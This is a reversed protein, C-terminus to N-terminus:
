QARRPGAITRSSVFTSVDMLSELCVAIRNLAGFSTSDFGGGGGGLSKGPTPIGGVNRNRNHQLRALTKKWEAKDALFQKYAAVRQEDTRNGNSLRRVWLDYARVVKNFAPYIPAYSAGIMPVIKSKQHACRGCRAKLTVDM